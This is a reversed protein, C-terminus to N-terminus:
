TDVERPCFIFFVGRLKSKCDLWDNKERLREELFKRTGPVLQLITIVFSCDDVLKLEYIEGVKIFFDLIERPEESTLPKIQKLLNELVRTEKGILANPYGEDLVPFLTGDSTNSTGAPLSAQANEVVNKDEM